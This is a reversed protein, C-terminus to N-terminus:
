ATQLAEDRLLARAAAPVAPLILEVVPAAGAPVSHLRVRAGLIALVERSVAFELLRALESQPGDGPEVLGTRVVPQRADGPTVHLVLALEPISEGGDAAAAPPRRLEAHLQAEGGGLHYRVARLVQRLATGLIAPDGVVPAAATEGAFRVPLGGRDGLDRTAALVLDGARERRWSPEASVTRAALYDESWAVAERLRELNRLAIRVCSVQRADDAEELADELVQLAAQAATVPTRLEHRLFQAYDRFGRRARAERRLGAAQVMAADLASQLLVGDEGLELLRHQCVRRCHCADDDGGVLIIPVEQWALAVTGPCWTREGDGGCAVVVLDCDDPPAEAALQTVECVDAGWRRLCDRIDDILPSHGTLLVRPM